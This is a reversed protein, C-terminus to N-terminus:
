IHAFNLNKREIKWTCDKGIIHYYKQPLLKSYAKWNDTHCVKIPLQEVLDLLKQLTAESRDGNQWAVIVGSNREVVYWTWRKSSKNGVYSWFEDWKTRYYIDVELRSLQGAEYCDLLNPNM